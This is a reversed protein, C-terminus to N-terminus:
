PIFYRQNVVPLLDNHIWDGALKEMRIGLRELHPLLFKRVMGCLEIGEWEDAHWDVALAVTHGSRDSVSGVARNYNMGHHAYGPCCAVTPRLWSHVRIPQGLLARIEEMIAAMRLINEKEQDTPVHYVGWTPLWLAEHVIFNGEDTLPAQPDTWDVDTINM